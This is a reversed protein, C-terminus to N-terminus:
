LSMDTRNGVNSRLYQPSSLLALVQRISFATYTSVPHRCLHHVACWLLKWELQLHLKHCQQLAALVIQVSIDSRAADVEGDVHRKVLVAALIHGVEAGAGSGVIQQLASSSLEPGGASEQYM